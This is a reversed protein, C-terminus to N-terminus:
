YPRTPESIHILSLAEEPAEPKDIDTYLSIEQLFEQLSGEAHLSDYEEAVGVLEQLNEIRGEAEVTREASLAELYGTNTLVEELIEAVPADAATATLEQMQSSSDRICM